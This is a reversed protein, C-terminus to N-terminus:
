MNQKSFALNSSNNRSLIWLYDSLRNLWQALLPRLMGQGVLEWAESEAQRTHSRALDAFAASRDLEQVWGTFSECRMELEKSFSTLKGLDDESLQHFFEQFKGLDDEHTAVEAMLHVLIEQIWRIVIKVEPIADARYLSLFGTLSDLKGLLKIRQHSKPVERDFQLQTMGSDGALTTVSRNNGPRSIGTTRNTLESVVQLRETESMKVWNRIEEL